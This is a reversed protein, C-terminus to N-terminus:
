IYENENLCKIVCTCIAIPKVPNLRLLMECRSINLRKEMVSREEIESYKETDHVVTKYMM